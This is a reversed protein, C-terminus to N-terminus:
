NNNHEDSSREVESSALADGDEENITRMVIRQQKSNYNNEGSSREVEESNPRRALSRM